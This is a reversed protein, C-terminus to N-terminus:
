VRIGKQYITGNYKSGKKLNDIKWLPCLNTYHNLAIIDDMTKASALPKKHDIHWKGINDWSMGSVFQSEIHNKLFEYDCGLMEKTSKLKVQGQLKIFSYVRNRIRKILLLNPNLKLRDRVQANRKIRNEPRLRYEKTYRNRHNIQDQKCYACMKYKGSIEALIGCKFCVKCPIILRSADLLSYFIDELNKGKIQNGKKKISLMKKRLVSLQIKEPTNLM